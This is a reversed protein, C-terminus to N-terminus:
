GTMWIVHAAHSGSTLRAVTGTLLVALTIAAWIIRAKMFDNYRTIAATQTRSLCDNIPDLHMSRARGAVSVAVSFPPIVCNHRASDTFAFPSDPCPMEIRRVGRGTPLFM